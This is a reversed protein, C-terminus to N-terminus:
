TTREGLIFGRADLGAICDVNLASYRKVFIDICLKFAIIVWTMIRLPSILLTPEGEPDSLMGSIDYFRDIGHFPYYPIVSAIRRAEPGDQTYEATVETM